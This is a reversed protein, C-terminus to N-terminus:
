AKPDALDYIVEGRELHVSQLSSFLLPYQDQRLARLIQNSTLLHSKGTSSM